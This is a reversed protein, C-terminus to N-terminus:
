MNELLWLYIPTAFKLTVTGNCGMIGFFRDNIVARSGNFDHEYVAIENVLNGLAINDFKLQSITLCSDQLIEGSESVTTHDSQKNKLVLSLTHETEIDDTPLSGTITLSEVVHDTDFVCQDNIWVEFGLKASPNTTTLEFSFKSQEM